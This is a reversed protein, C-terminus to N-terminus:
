VRLIASLKGWQAPSPIVRGREWRGIWHRHIGTLVALKEQTLRAGHRAQRIKGGVTGSLLPKEYKLVEPKNSLVVHITRQTITWHALCRAPALAIPAKLKASHGEATRFDCAAHSLKPDNPTKVM